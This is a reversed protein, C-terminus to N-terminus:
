RLFLCDEVHGSNSYLNQVHGSNSYLNSCLKLVLTVVIQERMPLLSLMERALQSIHGTPQINKVEMTYLCRDCHQITHCTYFKVVFDSKHM